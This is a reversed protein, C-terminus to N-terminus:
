LKGYNIEETLANMTERDARIAVFRFRNAMTANITVLHDILEYPNTSRMLAEICANAHSDGNEYLEGFEKSFRSLLREKKHYWEIREMERQDIHYKNNDM